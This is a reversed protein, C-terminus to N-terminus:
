SIASRAKRWKVIAQRVPPVRLVISPGFLVGLPGLARLGVLLVLHLVVLGAM